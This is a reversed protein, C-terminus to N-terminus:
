EELSVKWRYIGNAGAEELVTMVLRVATTTVTEFRITNYRDAAIVDQYESFLKAEQWSGGGDLYMVKISGPIRTGSGDDYWYVEFKNMSIEMDWEYQVYHESGAAQYYNGWGLGIRGQNSSEPEWNAKIGDLYEWEATYDSYATARYELHAPDPM